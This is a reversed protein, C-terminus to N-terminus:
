KKDKNRPSLFDMFEYKYFRYLKQKAERWSGTSLYLYGITCIILTGLIFAIDYSYSTAQKVDETTSNIVLSPTDPVAPATSASPANPIAAIFSPIIDAFLAASHQAAKLTNYQTGMEILMSHPNLDQNYNGHAIFIGRILGKYKADARSKITKAYELTTNKNQNQQGVVLLIKVADLDNIIIKYMNLPASDRHIDFLTAPQQTLLKVFTRRSRQYANADHPDHLTKDHIVQYGVNTLGKALADGVLMISGKGTMTSTGDTPIYSEDTHTHYIAITPQDTAVVGQVPIALQDFSASASPEPNIYRARALADEVVTIEYLKNDENIYQDGAHITLGTQFILTNEEDIVTIYGSSLEDNADALVVSGPFGFVLLIGLCIVLLYSM